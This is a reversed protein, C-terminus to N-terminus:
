AKVSVHIHQANEYWVWDFGEDVALKGLRGLKSGDVDSATLDAARGEYHLSNGAHEDDEDWAETVRLKLNPWEKKVRAALGNLRDNLSQTMMRDAGTHEEDKFVIDGNNNEVLTKFEPDARTIKKVIAGCTEVEGKNPVRQGLTLDGAVLAHVMRAERCSEPAMARLPRLQAPAEQAAGSVRLDVQTQGVKVTLWIERVGGALASPRGAADKSLAEMVKKLVEDVVTAASTRPSKRSASAKKAM